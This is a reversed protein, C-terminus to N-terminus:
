CLQTIRATIAFTKRHKVPLTEVKRLLNLKKIANEPDASSVIQNVLARVMIEKTKTHITLIEFLAQAV